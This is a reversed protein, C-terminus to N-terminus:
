GAVRQDVSFDEVRMSQESMVSPSHEHQYLCDDSGSARVQKPYEPDDIVKNTSNKQFVNNSGGSLGDYKIKKRNILFMLLLAIITLVAIGGVILLVFVM